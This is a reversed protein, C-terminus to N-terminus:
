KKGFCILKGERTSIFLRGDAASVGMYSPFGGVPAKALLKGDERNLIWLEPEGKVRRYHGVVYVFKPALVIDDAILEIPDSTWLPKKPDKGAAVLQMPGALAWSEGRPTQFAVCLGEDFAIVRGGIRGDSFVEGGRDENTRSISNGYGLMDDIARSRLQFGGALPETCINTNSKPGPHGSENFPEYNTKSEVVEGTDPKFAVERNGGHITSSFGASSRAVGDKGVMVDAATPWLSELKEQGGILRERPAVLLKYVFAGTKADLCTVFGDKSAVLCLGNHITPPFDVRSGIHAVWKQKGDKTGLAVVRQAGIDSVYAVGNAVVAQTLGTREANMQGYTHGGLGVEAEWLKELKDGLDGDTANGRANNARFTPWDGPAAPAGSAPADGYRRLGKGGPAQDFAIDAPGIACIGQVSGGKRGPSNYVMGYAVPPQLSCSPHVLYPFVREMTKYNLWVNHHYLLYDGLALAQETACASGFLRGKGGYDEKDIKGTALDISTFRSEKQEPGREYFYPTICYALLKDGMRVYNVIGGFLASGKPGQPPLAFLGGLETSWLKEGTSPSLATVVWPRQWRGGELVLLHSGLHKLSLDKKVRDGRWALDAKYVESGDTLKRARISVGDSEILEEEHIATAKGGHRWLQKGDEASFVIGNYIVYKDLHTRVYGPNVGQGLLEFRQEGTAGDYCVLKHDKTVAFLRGSEDAALTWNWGTWASTRWTSWPADEQKIWLVRGNYADRAVLQTTGNPWGGDAELWERYYFRGAGFTPGAIGCAMHARMGARWKLSDCPRWEVPKVPKQWVAAFGGAACEVMNLEKAEGAFSAPAMRLAVFGQPVLIRCLDALKAKGLAAADEVVILNLLNTGYDEPDFAADRVGIKERDAFDNGAVMAGWQVALKADQQLVQVFVASKAALAKSLNLDKAGLMLCLGGKVGTSELLVAADEGVPGAYSVVPCLALFVLLMRTRLRVILCNATKM